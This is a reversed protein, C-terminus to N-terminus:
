SFIPSRSLKLVNEHDRIPHRKAVVPVSSPLQEKDM